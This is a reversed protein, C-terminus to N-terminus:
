GSGEGDQYQIDMGFIGECDPCFCAMGICVEKSYWIYHWEFDPNGCKPCRRAQPKGEKVQPTM